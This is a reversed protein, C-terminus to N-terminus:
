IDVIIDEHPIKELKHFIVQEETIRRLQEPNQIRTLMENEWAELSEHYRFRSVGRERKDNLVYQIHDKALDLRSRYAAILAPDAYCDDTDPHKQKKYGEIIQSLKVPGELPITAYQRFEEVIQKYLGTEHEQKWRYYSIKSKFDYIDEFTFTAGINGFKKPNSLNSYSVCPKIDTRAKNLTHWLSILLPGVRRAYCDGKPEKVLNPFVAAWDKTIQRDMKRDIKVDSKFM